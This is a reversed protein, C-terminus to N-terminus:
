KLSQLVYEKHFFQTDGSLIQETYWITIDGSMLFLFRSYRQRFDFNPVFNVKNHQIFKKMLIGFIPILKTYDIKNKKAHLTSRREFVSISITKFHLWLRNKVLHSSFLLIGHYILMRHAKSDRTCFITLLEDTILKITKIMFFKLICQMTVAQCRLFSYFSCLKHLINPSSFLIASKESCSYLPLVEM